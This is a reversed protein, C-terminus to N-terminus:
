PQAGVSAGAVAPVAGGAPLVAGPLVVAATALRRMLAWQDQDQILDATVMALLADKLVWIAEPDVWPPVQGTLSREAHQLPAARGALWAQHVARVRAQERALAEAADDAGASEADAGALMGLLSWTSDSWSSVADGMLQVEDLFLDVHSTPWRKVEVWAAGAGSLNETMLESM